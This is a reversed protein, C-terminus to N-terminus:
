STKNRKILTDFLNTEITELMMEFSLDKLQNLDIYFVLPNTSSEAFQKLSQRLFWSKGVRDPGNVFILNQQNINESYIDKFSFLFKQM